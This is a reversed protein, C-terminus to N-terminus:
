CAVAAFTAEQTVHSVGWTRRARPQTSQIILSVTGTAYRGHPEGALRTVIPFRTPMRTPRPATPAAAPTDM